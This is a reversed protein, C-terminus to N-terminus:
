DMFVKRPAVNKIADVLEKSTEFIVKERGDYYMTYTPNEENGSSFDLTRYNNSQDDLGSYWDELKAKKIEAPVKGDKRFMREAYTTVM